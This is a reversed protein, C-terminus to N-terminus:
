LLHLDHVLRWKILDAEGNSYLNRGHTFSHRTVIPCLDSTPSLLSFMIPLGNGVEDKTSRELLLGESLPVM